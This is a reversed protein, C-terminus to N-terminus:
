TRCMRLLSMEGRQAKARETIIEALELQTFKM